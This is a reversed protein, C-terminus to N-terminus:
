QNHGERSVRGRSAQALAATRQALASISTEHFDPLSTAIRDRLPGTWQHPLGCAGALAGCIAGVTAGDSDTDWGAMVALPVAAAFAGGGRRLAWAITAANNLVHVWHMGSFRDWLRRLSEDLSLNARGLEDGFRVAEALRSGPPIVASGAAAVEDLDGGAVAVASMGAVWMAGYVGNRTHSLTADVHALRAAEAPAGPSAWGYIDARILAGIWERFPNRIQACRDPAIGALLNRYAAREATFVRGAPLEDLWAQAVDDTTMGTSKSELLALGLMTYNLDDDEPMGDINEVLSNSRSRRNWPWRAVIDEPLGEATFYDDLPWRGQSLLIARIGEPPIKEVPKGLLCGAARGLWAGHLRDFDPEVPRDEASNALAFIDACLMPERPHPPEPRGDLMDILQWALVRQEPTAPFPSAGNRAIELSGGADLWTREVDTVDKGEDRSQRVEHILLDEPQSWSLRM